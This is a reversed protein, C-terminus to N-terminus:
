KTRITASGVTATVRETSQYGGRPRDTVEIGDDIGSQLVIQQTENPVPRAFVGHEGDPHQRRHAVPDPHLVPVDVRDAPQRPLGAAGPRLQAPDHPEPLHALQQGLGTRRPTFTPDRRGRHLQDGRRPDRAEVLLDDGDLALRERQRPPPIV